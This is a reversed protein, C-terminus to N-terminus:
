GVKTITWKLAVGPEAWPKKGPIVGPSTWSGHPTTSISDLNATHSALARGWNSNTSQSKPKLKWNKECNLPLCVNLLLCVKKKKVKGKSEQQLKFVWPECAHTIVPSELLWMGKTTKKCMRTTIHPLPVTESRIVTSSCSNKWSKAGFMDTSLSNCPTPYQVYTGCTFCM